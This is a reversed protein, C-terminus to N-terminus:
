RAGGYHEFITACAGVDYVLTTCLPLDQRPGVDHADRSRGEVYGEVYCSLREFEVHM